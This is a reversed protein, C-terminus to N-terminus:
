DVLLSEACSTSKLVILKETQLKVESLEEESLDNLLLLIAALTNSKFTETPYELQEPLHKSITEEDQKSEGDFSQRPEVEKDQKGEVQEKPLPKEEDVSKQKCLFQRLSTTTLTKDLELGDFDPLNEDKDFLIGQEKALERDEETIICSDLKVLNPLNHIVTHRYSESQTCPNDALWLVQLNPLNKLFKIEELNHIKNRRLYVEKIRPCHSLDKLSHVDNVSLNLVELNICNKIISIDHLSSGWVNLNRINEVCAARSRNLCEKEDLTGTM